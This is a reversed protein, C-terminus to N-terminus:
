PKLGQNIAELFSVSFSSKGNHLGLEFHNKAMFEAYQDNQKMLNIKIHKYKDKIFLTGSSQTIRSFSIQIDFDFHNDYYNLAELLLTFGTYNNARHNYLFSPISYKDAKVVDVFDVFPYIIDFHIDDKLIKNLLKSNAESYTYNAEANSYVAYFINKVLNKYNDLKGE